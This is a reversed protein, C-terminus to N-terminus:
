PTRGAVAVRFVRNSEQEFWVKVQDGQSVPLSNVTFKQDNVTMSHSEWPPGGTYGSVVGELTSFSGSQEIQPALYYTEYINSITCPILVLAMLIVVAARTQAPSTTLRRGAEMEWALRSAGQLGPSDSYRRKGDDTSLEWALRSAGHLESVRSRTDFVPAPENEYDDDFSIRGEDRLQRLFYPISCATAILLLVLGCAWVRQFLGTADYIVQYDM